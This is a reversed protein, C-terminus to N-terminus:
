NKGDSQFIRLPIYKQSGIWLIIKLVTFSLFFSLGFSFFNKKERKKKILSFIQSHFFISKPLFFSSVKENCNKTPFYERLLSPKNYSSTSFLEWGSVSGLIRYVDSLIKKEMWKKTPHCVKWCGRINFREVFVWDKETICSKFNSYSFTKPM